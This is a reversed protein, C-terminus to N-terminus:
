IAETEEVEYTQFRSTRHTTSDRHDPGHMVSDFLIRGVEGPGPERCRNSTAMMLKRSGYWM